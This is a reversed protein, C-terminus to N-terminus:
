NQLPPLYHLQLHRGNLHLVVAQTGRLEENLMAALTAGQGDQTKYHIRMEVKGDIREIRHVHDPDGIDLTNLIEEVDNADVRCEAITYFSYAMTTFDVSVDINISYIMEIKIHFRNGQDSIASQDM